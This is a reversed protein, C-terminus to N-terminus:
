GKSRRDRGEAGGGPDGHRRHRGDRRARVAVRAAPRGPRAAQEARSLPVPVAPQRLHLLRDRVDGEARHWRGDPGRAGPRPRHRPGDHRPDHRRRGAEADGLRERAVAVEQEEDWGGFGPWGWQFSETRIFVHEHMLVVGLESVDVEGATTPVTAMTRHGGSPPQAPTSGVEDASPTLHPVGLRPTM